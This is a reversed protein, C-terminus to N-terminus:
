KMGELLKVIIEDLTLDPFCGEEKLLEASRRCYGYFFYQKQEFTMEKKM